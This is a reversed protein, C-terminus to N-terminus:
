FTKEVKQLDDNSPLSLRNKPNKELQHLPEHHQIPESLRSKPMNDKFKLPPSKKELLPHYDPNKPPKSLKFSPKFVMYTKPKFGTQPPNLSTPKSM